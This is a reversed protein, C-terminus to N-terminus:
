YLNFFREPLPLSYDMNQKTEPHTFVLRSALLLLGRSKLDEIQAENFGAKMLRRSYKSYLDDGVVPFGLATFTARIQHTRGTHLDIEVKSFHKTQELTRYSLSAEKFLPRDAEETFVMQKRLIPNRGIYGKETGESPTQGWLWAIYTKRIQRKQFLEALNRHANDTKAIVMLGETERDLRHVIGPREPESGESLNEIQRILSHVLTDNGTGAGPHVTMKAPKHIIALYEDQFLVPVTTDNGTLDFGTEESYHIEIELPNESKFSSKRVPKGEVFVSGEKIM